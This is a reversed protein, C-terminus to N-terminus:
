VSETLIGSDDTKLDFKIRLNNMGMTYNYKYDPILAKLLHFNEPIDKETFSSLDYQEGISRFHVWISDDNKQLLMNLLEHSQIHSRIYIAMEEAILGIRHSLKKPTGNEECFAVFFM